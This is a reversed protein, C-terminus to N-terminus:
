ATKTKWGLSRRVRCLGPGLCGWLIGRGRDALWPTWESLGVGQGYSEFLGHAGVCVEELTGLAKTGAYGWEEGLLAAHAFDLAEV